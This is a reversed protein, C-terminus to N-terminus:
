ARQREAPKVALFRAMKAKGLGVFGLIFDREQATIVTHGLKELHIKMVRVILDRDAVRWANFPAGALGRSLDPATLGIGYAAAKGSGYKEELAERISEAFLASDETHCRWGVCIM